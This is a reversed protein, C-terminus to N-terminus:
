QLLLRTLRPPSSTKSGPVSGFSVNVIEMTPPLSRETLSCYLRYRDALAYAEDIQASFSSIGVLDFPELDDELNVEGIERYAVDIDDPTLSAVTLLGLSPLSAVM